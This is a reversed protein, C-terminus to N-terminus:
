KKGRIGREASTAARWTGQGDLRCRLYGGNASEVIIGPSMLVLGKSTRCGCLKGSGFPAPQCTVRPQPPIFIVKGSRDRAADNFTRVWLARGQMTEVCMQRVGVGGVEVVSGVPYKGDTHLCTVPNRSAAPLSAHEEHKTGLAYGSPGALFGFVFPGVIMVLVLAGVLVRPSRDIRHHPQFSMIAELRNKLSPGSIGCAGPAARALHFQCVKLIGSAFEDPGAGYQLVIEDCALEHEAILRGKIWWLMPHFWFLCTLLHVFGASLNDRRKAHALEHLLVAEFEGAELEGSLGEPVTITHRIIGSVGPEIRERTTRLVLHGRVGLRRALEDLTKNESKSSELLIGRSASMRRLWVVLMIAVGCLWIALLLLPLAGASNATSAAPAQLPAFTSLAIPTAFLAPYAPLLGRLEIGVFSFLTFPLAFKSAAVLWVLHRSAADRKRMLFPFVAVIAAFVTSEILHRVIAAIM